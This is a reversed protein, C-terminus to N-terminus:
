SQRYTTKLRAASSYKPTERSSSMPLAIHSIKGCPRPPTKSRAQTRAISSRIAERNSIGERARAPRITSSRMRGMRSAPMATERESIVSRRRVSSAKRALSARSSSAVWADRSPTHSHFMTVPSIITEALARSIQPKEGSCTTCISSM